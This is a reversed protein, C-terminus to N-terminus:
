KGYGSTMVKLLEPRGTIIGDVGMELLRKMEAPDDIMWVVVEQGLEHASKIFSETIVTIGSFRVPVEYVNSLPTHTYGWGIKSLLVLKRVESPSASIAIGEGERHLVDIVSEHSSAIVVRGTMGAKRVVEIVKRAMDVSDPKIEMNFHAQPFRDFAEALTNITIGKGRLPTGSGGNPTFRYAFDLKKLEALTFQEVRGTGNSTRELTEDHLIVIERDKTEQLDLDIVDAGSKLAREFAYLTNEPWHAKGGRHAFILPRKIEKFYNREQVEESSAVTSAATLCTLIRLLFRKGFLM